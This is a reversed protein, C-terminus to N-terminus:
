RQVIRILVRPSFERTNKRVTLSRGSWATHAATLTESHTNSDYIRHVYMMICVDAFIGYVGGFVQYNPTLM